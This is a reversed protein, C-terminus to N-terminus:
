RDYDFRRLCNLIRKPSPVATAIGPWGNAKLSLVYPPCSSQTRWLRPAGQLTFFCGHLTRAASFLANKNKVDAKLPAWPLGCYCFVLYWCQLFISFCLKWSTRPAEAWGFDCAADCMWPLRESWMTTYLAPDPEVGCDSMFMYFVTLRGVIFVFHHWELLCSNQMRCVSPWSAVSVESPIYFTLVLELNCYLSYVVCLNCTSVTWRFGVAIFSLQKSAFWMRKISPKRLFFYAAYLGRWKFCM